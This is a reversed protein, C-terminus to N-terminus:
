TQQIYDNREALFFNQLYREIQSRSIFNKNEPAIEELYQNFITNM